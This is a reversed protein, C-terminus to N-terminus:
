LVRLFGSFVMGTQITGIGTLSNSYVILDTKPGFSSTFPSIFAQSSDLPLDFGVWEVAFGDLRYRLQFIAPATLTPRYALGEYVQGIPVTYVCQQSTNKGIPITSLVNAPVGATVIGYGIYIVGANKLGTGATLVRQTPNVRWGNTTVTVPTQGNLVVTISSEAFTTADIIPISITRAGTGAATDLASSSSVTITVPITPWPYVGGSHAWVPELTNPTLANYGTLSKSTVGPVLGRSVAIGYDMSLTKAMGNNLDPLKDWLARLWGRVGTGLIIPPTSGDTGLNTNTIEAKQILETLKIEVDTEEAPNTMVVPLPNNITVTTNRFRGNLWKEFSVLM